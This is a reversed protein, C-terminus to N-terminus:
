TTNTAEENDAVYVPVANQSASVKWSQAIQYAEATADRMPTHMGLRLQERVEVSRILAILRFVPLQNGWLGTRGSM